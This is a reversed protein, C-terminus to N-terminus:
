FDYELGGYFETITMPRTFDWLLEQALTDFSKYFSKESSASLHLKLDDRLVFNVKALVIPQASENWGANVGKEHSFAKYGTELLWDYNKPKVYSASLLSALYKFDPYATGSYVRNLHENRWTLEIMGPLRWVAKAILINENFDMSDDVVGNRRHYMDEFRLKFTDSYKREWMGSFEHNKHTKMRTNEHNLVYLHGIRGRTQKDIFINATTKLKLQSYGRPDDSPYNRKQWEDEFNWSFTKSVPLEYQFRFYDDWYSSRFLNIAENGYSRTDYTNSVSIDSKNGSYSRSFESYYTSNVYDLSPANKYSRWNHTSEYFLTGNPVFYTAQGNYNLQSFESRSYRPYVRNNMGLNLLYEYKGQKSNWFAEALNDRYNKTATEPYWVHHLTDKVTVATNKSHQHLWGLSLVNEKVLEN